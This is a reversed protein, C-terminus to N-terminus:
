KDDEADEAEGEDANDDSLLDGDDFDDDEFEDEYDSESPIDFGIINFSSGAAKSFLSFRVLFFGMLLTLVALLVVAATLWKIIGPTPSLISSGSFRISGICEDIIAQDDDSLEGTFQLYVSYGVGGVITRYEHYAGYGDGMDGAQYLHIFTNGNILASEVGKSENNAFIGSQAAINDCMASIDDPTLSNYSGVLRAYASTDFTIAILASQDNNVGYLLLSSGLMSEPLDGSNEAMAAPPEEATSISDLVPVTMTVGFKPLKVGITGRSALSNSPMIDFMSDDFDSDSLDFLDDLDSLDITIPEIGMDEDVQADDLTVDDAPLEEAAAASAFVSALM